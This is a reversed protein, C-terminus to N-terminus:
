PYAAMLRSEDHVFRMDMKELSDSTRLLHSVGPIKRGLDRAIDIVRGRPAMQEYWLPGGDQPM